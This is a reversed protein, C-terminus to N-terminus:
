IGLLTCIRERHQDPTGFTERNVTVRRLYLHLDHEWTVSIGGHFQMCEQVIHLSVDGVYAKAVSAEVAADDGDDGGDGDDFATAAADVCAKATELHLLLDAVRHKLAQFSAIPRGFAFRDHMYELTFEFVRDLAGATEAGQLTTAIQLQREVAAGAAGVEGVVVARPLRVDDLVVDGYRKTLDLSRAPVVTVGAADTPVLVQTVGDDTRGVVLVHSAAGAAEVHRKRGSLVVDDGDITVTTAPTRGDWNTASEAVAWTAVEDGAVLAALREAHAGDDAAALAAVVVNVPLFPGPSVMRGMEAAVIAADSLPRGSLSGGGAAETAFMATWGLEAAQRWWTPDFGADTDAVGRVAAIPAQADIFRRTTERFFEQDDSLDLFV